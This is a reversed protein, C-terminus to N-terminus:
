LDKVVKKRNKTKYFKIIEAAAWPSNSARKRMSTGNLLMGFTGDKADATITCNISASDGVSKEFDEPMKIIVSFLVNHSVIPFLM